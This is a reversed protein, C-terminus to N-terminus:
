CPQGEKVSRGEGSCCKHHVFSLASIEGRGTFYPVRLTHFGSLFDKSLMRGCNGKSLMGSTSRSKGLSVLM